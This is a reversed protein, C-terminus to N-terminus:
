RRSPASFKTHNKSSLVSWIANTRKEVPTCSRTGSEYSKLDDIADSIWDISATAAVFRVSANM